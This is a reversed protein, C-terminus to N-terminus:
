KSFEVLTHDEGHLENDIIKSIIKWDGGALGSGIKPYGIRRGQFDTTILSFVQRIADYDANIIGPGTKWHYQTYANVIFFSHRHSDDDDDGGEDNDARDDSGSEGSRGGGGRRATAPSPRKKRMRKVDVISVTYTGLKSKDGKITQIDEIYAQPFKHRISRAIGAGMQCFCNCGHVIVDFEGNMALKLLDGHVVKM